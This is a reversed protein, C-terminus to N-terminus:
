SPKAYTAMGAFDLVVCPEDGITWGDHGPPISVVDGPGIDLETGDDMRIRQRGSIVYGVHAAQCSDTGAIPKVHDSWKWGPQFTARGVVGGGVSVLEVQGKDHFPRTEDAEDFRKREVGAMGAGWDSTLDPVLGVGAHKHKGLVIRKWSLRGMVPLCVAHREHAGVSRDGVAPEGVPVGQFERYCVSCSSRHARARENKPDAARLRCRELNPEPLSM